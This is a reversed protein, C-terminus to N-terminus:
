GYVKINYILFWFSVVLCSAFSCWLCNRSVPSCNMCALFTKFSLLYSFFIGCTWARVTFWSNFGCIYQLEQMPPVRFHDNAWCHLCEDPVALEIITSRIDQFATDEVYCSCDDKRVKSLFLVCIFLYIIILDVRLFEPGTYHVSVIQVGQVPECHL